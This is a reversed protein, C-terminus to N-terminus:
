LYTLQMYSVEMKGSVLSKRSGSNTPTQALNKMVSSTSGPSSGGHQSLSVQKPSTGAHASPFAAQRNSPM